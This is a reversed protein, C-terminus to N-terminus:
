SPRPVHKPIQVEIQLSQEVQGAAIEVHKCFVPLNDGERVMYEESELMGVEDPYPCACVTYTGATLKTIRTPKGDFSMAFTAHGRDRGVGLRDLDAHTRADHKGSLSEILALKVPKSATLTVVLTTDGNAIALDLKAAPGSGVTVSEAHLSIGRVPDQGLMASVLYRDPALKDFRYSGDAGSLVSFMTEAVTKSQATVVINAAPKGGKTVTGGLAGFSAVVLVLDLTSGTTPPLTIPSSRGRTEHDAVVHCKGRGVGVITFEGNGDTTADKVLSAGPPGGFAAPTSTKSGTGWLLPGASVTAGVVPRGATDVVRGSVSRGPEVIITGLDVTTNAVIEVAPLARETFGLGRVTFRYSRPPISAVEFTGDRTSVPISSDWGGLDIAFTTPARGDAFAVKGKISGGIPVVIRVATDGVSAHTEDAALVFADHQTGPPKARLQYRGASLGHFAFAGSSDALALNNDLLHSSVDDAGELAAYVQAGEVPEGSKRVVVGAIVGNQALALEISRDGGALDVKMLASTALDTAAVIDIRMRPLADIRFQGSADATTERTRQFAFGAVEEAARIRAWPVAVGAVDVVRGEIAAGRALRIEIGTRSAVGDHTVVESIGPAHNAHHATFRFSGAQLADVRFVGDPGTTINEGATQGWDSVGSYRVVANAVPRADPDLVRGSVSSGRELALQITQSGGSIVAWTSARAHGATTASIRVPGGPLGTLKVRGNADTTAQRDVAGYLEVHASEVPQQAATVIVEVTAGRELRMVIPGTADSLRTTVPGAAHEGRTAVLEYSRGLLEDFVFTGDDETTAVRAPRTDIVVTAGGAPSGTEDIVQGELRLTGKRDDDRVIQARRPTTVAAPAGPQAPNVVHASSTESRLAFWLALAGAVLAGAIAIVLIRRKM